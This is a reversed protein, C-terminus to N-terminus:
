KMQLCKRSKQFMRKPTLLSKLFGMLKRLGVNVFLVEMHISQLFLVLEMKINNRVKPSTTWDQLGENSQHCIIKAEM